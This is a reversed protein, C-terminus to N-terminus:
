LVLMSDGFEHSLYGADEADELARRLLADDVFAGLLAFHSEGAQHMGTLLADVVRPVFGERVVLDTEGPGALLAGHRAVCGELARVVSTGAAVVRGGARKAAEVAAVTGAPIDYREPLPLAADLAADGTSSLGAAHTLAAVGVGGRRLALLSAFTLPRGASPM